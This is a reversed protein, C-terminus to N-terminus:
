SLFDMDVESVTETSVEKQEEGYTDGCFVMVLSAMGMSVISLAVVGYRYALVLGGEGAVRSMRDIMMGEIVQYAWGAIFSFCNSIGIASASVSPEYFEKVMTHVVSTMGTSGAALMSLNTFIGWLGLKGEWFVLALMNIAGLLTGFVVIWKRTRCLESLVPAIISAIMYGVSTGMLAKGRQDVNFHYVDRLLPGGWYSNLGYYPGSTGISWLVTLWFRSNKLVTSCNKVLSRLLDRLSNDHDQPHVDVVTYGYHVPHGRTSLISLPGCIAGLIAVAHFCFRWGIMESLAAVPFQGLIGGMGAIGQFIGLVLGYSKSPWWNAIIRTIPCYIPSCGIGVLFRGVCGGVFSGSFGCIAVGMAALITGAGVLFAPEIVDALLGAIPQILAYPFFFLAAWLSLRAPHVGYSRAIDEFLASPAARQFFVLM